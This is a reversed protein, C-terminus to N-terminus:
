HSYLSRLTEYYSMTQGLSCYEESLLTFSSEIPTPGSEQNIHLIKVTGLELAGSETVVTAHFTTQFGYDDWDDQILIVLPEKSKHPIRSRRPLVKFIM